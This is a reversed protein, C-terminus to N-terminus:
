LVWYDDDSPFDYLFSDEVNIDTDPRESLKLITTVGREAETALINSCIVKSIFPDRVKENINLHLKDIFFNLVERFQKAAIPSFQRRLKEKQGAAVEWELSKLTAWFANVRDEGFKNYAEEKLLKQTSM